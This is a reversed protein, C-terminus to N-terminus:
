SAIVTKANTMTRKIPITDTPPTELTHCFDISPLRKSNKLISRFGIIRHVNQDTIIPLVKEQSPNTATLGDPTCRKTENEDILSALLTSTIKTTNAISAFSTLQKEPSIM